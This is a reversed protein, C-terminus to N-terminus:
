TVQTIFYTNPLAFSLAPSRSLRWPGLASSSTKAALARNGGRQRLEAFRTRGRQWQRWFVLRLRRRLWSDLNRRVSPTECFGSYGRWGTLFLKISLHM